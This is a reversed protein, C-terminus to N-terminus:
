KANEFIEPCCEALAEWAGANTSPHDSNWLENLRDIMAQRIVNLPSKPFIDELDDDFHWLQNKIMLARLLDRAKNKDMIGLMGSLESRVSKIEAVQESTFDYWDENDNNHTSTIDM